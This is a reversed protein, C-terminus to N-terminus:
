DTVGAASLLVEAARDGDSRNSQFQLGNDGKYPQRHDAENNWIADPIGKPFAKCVRGGEELQLRACFMCIPAIPSPM